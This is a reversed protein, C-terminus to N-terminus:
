NDTAPLLVGTVSAKAQLTDTAVRAVDEVTVTALDREWTM